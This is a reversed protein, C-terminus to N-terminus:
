NGHTKTANIKTLKNIKLSDLQHQMLLENNERKICHFEKIMKLRNKWMAYNQQRTLVLEEKIYKASLQETHKKELELFSAMFCCSLALIWATRENGFAVGVIYFLKKIKSKIWM